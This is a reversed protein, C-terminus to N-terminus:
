QEAQVPAPRPAGSLDFLDKTGTMGSIGAFEKNKAIRESDGDPGIIWRERAAGFIIERFDYDEHRCRPLYFITVEIRGDERKKADEAIMIDVQSLRMQPTMWRQLWTNMEAILDPNPFGTRKLWEFVESMEPTAPKKVPYGYEVIGMNIVPPQNWVNPWNARNAAEREQERRKIIQDYLASDEETPFKGIDLLIEDETMKARRAAVEARFEEAAKLVESLTPAAVRSEGTQM